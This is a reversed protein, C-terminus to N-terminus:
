QRSEAAIRARLEKVWNVVVIVQMGEADVPKLMLFHEDDRTVDYNQHVASTLYPGEFLKQRGTISFSPTM